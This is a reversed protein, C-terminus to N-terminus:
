LTKSWYLNDVCNNLKNGDKHRVYQLNDPNPIYTEAILRHVYVSKGHQDKYLSVNCYGKKTKGQALFKDRRYSYVEGYISVAYLKEYGKVDKM